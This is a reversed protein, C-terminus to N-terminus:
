RGPFQSAPPPPLPFLYVSEEYLVALKAGDPSLALQAVSKDSISRIAAGKVELKYSREHFPADYVLLSKLEGRGGIDLAELRGVLKFFPIVFRQGLSAGILEGGKPDADTHIVEGDPKFLKWPSGPLFLTDDNVFQPASGWHSQKEIPSITKWETAIGRIALNPECHYERMLCATMAISSDSIGIWGSQEEKWSRLIQLSNTEM